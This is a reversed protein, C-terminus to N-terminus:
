WTMSAVAEPQEWAAVTIKQMSDLVDEATVTDTFIVSGDDTVTFSSGPREGTEESKMTVGVPEGSVEAMAARLSVENASQVLVRTAKNQLRVSTAHVAGQEGSALLSKLSFVARECTTGEKELREILEACLHATLSASPTIVGVL